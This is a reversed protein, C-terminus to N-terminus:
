ATVQISGKMSSHINCHYAVTGAKAPLTVTASAGGAIEGTDFSNDNASFTHTTGDNNKVTITAGAKAKLPTPSFAFDKITIVTGTTANGTTANGTTAASKKKDSGCATSAVAVAAIALVAVSGALRPHRRHPENTM